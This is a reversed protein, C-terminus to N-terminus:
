TNYLVEKKFCMIHQRFVVVFYTSAKRPMAYGAGFGASCKTVALYLYWGFFCYIIYLLHITSQLHSIM